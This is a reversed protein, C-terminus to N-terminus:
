NSHRRISDFCLHYSLTHNWWVLCLRFTFTRRSNPIDDACICENGVKCSWKLCTKRSEKDFYRLLGKSIPLVEIKVFTVDSIKSSGPKRPKAVHRALPAHPAALPAGANIQNKKRASATKQKNRKKVCRLCKPRALHGVRTKKQSGENKRNNKKQADRTKKNTQNKKPRVQPAWRTPRALRRMRMKKIKERERM